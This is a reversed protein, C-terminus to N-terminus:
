KKDKNVCFKSQSHRQLMLEKIGFMIEEGIQTYTERSPEKKRFFDMNIPKGFSVTVKGTKPM